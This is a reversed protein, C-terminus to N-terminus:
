VLLQRATREKWRIMPISPMFTKYYIKCFGTDDIRAVKRNKHMIEYVTKAM